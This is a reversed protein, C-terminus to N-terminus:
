LQILIKAMTDIQKQTLTQHIGVFFTKDAMKHANEFVCGDGIWAFAPQENSVGGMLTRIEVGKASLFEWAKKVNLEKPLTIPFVFPSGSIDPQKYVRINKNESLVDYLTAYHKKRIEEEEDFRKLKWKGFCANLESIEVNLGIREYTFQHAPGAPVDCLESSIHCKCSRGWHVISDCLIYDEENLTIVAGGGYASLHHPHYFSWTCMDGYLFSQKGGIVMDMTECCDQLILCDNKDAYKRIAQIECPFGLFHTPVIVSPPEKLSILKEISMNFNDSEVDIMTIEFGSMKLASITTPFTFASVVATLRKNKQKVKEAMAMAAVLNASSGSNVLSVYPIGFKDKLEESFENINKRPEGLNIELFEGFGHTEVNGTCPYIYKM